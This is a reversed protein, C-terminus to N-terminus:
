VEEGPVLAQQEAGIEWLNELKYFARADPQMIHVVVDQLDVLVWDAKDQGEMGLVQHGAEKAKEVLNEAISRVHRGSTGSAVLMYDTIPTLDRVDLVRLDRAKLDDLADQALQLLDGSM